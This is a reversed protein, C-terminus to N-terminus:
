GPANTEQRLAEFVREEGDKYVMGDDVALTYEVSLPLFKGEATAYRTGDPGVIRATTHVMRRHAKTVEAEVTLAPDPPVNKLYRVTMEGTVCMRGIARAAAWGMCEDLLAAVVGGHVVGPYGCHQEKASVPIKVTDGEVYFRGQLGAGNEEGCIFCHKSVPLPRINDTNM